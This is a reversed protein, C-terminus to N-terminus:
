GAQDKGLPVRLRLWGEGNELGSWGANEAKIGATDTGMSCPGRKYWVEKFTVWWKM